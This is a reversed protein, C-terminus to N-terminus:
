SLQIQCTPSFDFLSLEGRARNVTVNGILFHVDGGDAELLALIMVVM